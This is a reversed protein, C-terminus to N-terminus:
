AKALDSDEIVFLLRGYDVISNQKIAVQSIRGDVPSKIVKVTNLSTIKGLEEGMAVSDGVKSKFSEDDGDIFQFVGVLESRIETKQSYVEDIEGSPKNDNNTDCEDALSSATDPSSDRVMKVRGNDGCRLEIEDFGNNTMIEYIKKFQCIDM